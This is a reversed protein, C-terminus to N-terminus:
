GDREDPPSSPSSQPESPRPWITTLPEDLHSDHKPHSGLWSQIAAALPASSPTSLESNEHVALSEIELLAEALLDPLEDSRELVDALSDFYSENDPRPNPLSYKSPLVHTFREFLKVLLPRGIQCLIHPDSFLKLKATNM